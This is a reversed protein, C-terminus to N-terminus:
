HAIAKLSIAVNGLTTGGATRTGGLAAEISLHPVFEYGAGLFAAPGAYAASGEGYAAAGIGSVGLSGTLFFTPGRSRGFYTVALSPYAATIFVDDRVIWTQRGSYYVACHESIGSGIILQTNVGQTPTADYTGRTWFLSGYGAGFGFMFGHHNGDFASSPSPALTISLIGLAVLSRAPLTM